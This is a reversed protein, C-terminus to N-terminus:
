ANRLWRPTYVRRRTLITGTIKVGDDALRQIAATAESRRVADSRVAIITTDCLKALFLSHRMSEITPLDIFVTRYRDRIWTVVEDYNEPIIRGIRLSENSGVPMVDLSDIATSHIAEEPTGSGVLLDILGKEVKMQFIRQLAPDGMNGDVLLVPGMHSSAARVSLNTALTSVGSKASCSTLGILTATNANVEVRARLRWLLMDMDSDLNSAPSMSPKTRISANAPKPANTIDM